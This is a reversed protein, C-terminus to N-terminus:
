PPVPTLFLSIWWYSFCIPLILSDHTSARFLILRKFYRAGRYVSFTRTKFWPILDVMLSLCSNSYRFFRFFRWGNMANPIGVWLVFWLSKWDFTGIRSFIQQNLCQHVFRPQLYLSAHTQFNIDTLFLFSQTKQVVLIGVYLVSHYGKWDCNGKLTSFM